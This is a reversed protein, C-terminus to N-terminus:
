CVIAAIWAIASRLTRLNPSAVPLAAHFFRERDREIWSGAEGVMRTRPAVVPRDVDVAQRRAIVRARGALIDLAPEIIRLAAFIMARPLLQDLVIRQGRQHPPNTIVGTFVRAIAAREVLGDADVRDLTEEAVFRALLAPFELDVLRRGALMYQHDASSRRSEGRRVMERPETVLDPYIFRTRERAAHHAEANRFVPQRAVREVRLHLANEVHADRQFRDRICM